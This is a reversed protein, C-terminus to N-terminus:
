VSNMYQRSIMTDKQNKINIPLHKVTLIVFDSLLSVVDIGSCM